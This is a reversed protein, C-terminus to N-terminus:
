VALCYLVPIYWVHHFVCPIQKPLLQIFRVFVLVFLTGPVVVSALYGTQYIVCFENFCSALLSFLRTNGPKSTISLIFVGEGFIIREM